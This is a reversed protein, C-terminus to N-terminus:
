SIASPRRILFLFRILLIAECLMADIALFSVWDGQMVAGHYTQLLLLFCVSSIASGTLVSKLYKNTLLAYLPTYLLPLVLFSLYRIQYFPLEFGGASFRSSTSLYNEVVSPEGFMDMMRYVGYKRIVGHSTLSKGIASLERWIDKIHWTGDKTYDFMKWWLEGQASTRWSINFLTQHLNSGRSMYFLFLLGFAGMAVAFTMVVQKISARKKGYVFVVPIVISYFLTWYSGFKHGAWMLFMLYPFYTLLLFALQKLLKKKGKTIAPYILIPCLYIPYYAIRNLLHPMVDRAYSFRGMRMRFAPMGVIPLFMMVGLAFIVIAGIKYMTKEISLHDILLTIKENKKLHMAVRQDVVLLITFFCWYYLALSQFAGIYHTYTDLESLYIPAVDCFLVGAMYFISGFLLFIYKWIFINNIFYLLAFYAIIGTLSLLVTVRYRSLFVCSLLLIGLGLYAALENQCYRTKDKFDLRKTLLIDEM